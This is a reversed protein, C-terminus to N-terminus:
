PAMRLRSAAVGGPGLDLSTVAGGRELILRGTQATLAIWDQDGAPCPDLDMLGAGTELTAAAFCGRVAVDGVRGRLDPFRMNSFGPTDPFSFSLLGGDAFAVRGILDSGGLADLHLTGGPAEIDILGDVPPAATRGELHLDVPGGASIDVHLRGGSLSPAVLSHRVSSEAAVHLDLELPGTRPAVRVHGGRRSDISVQSGEPRDTVVLDTRCSGSVTGGRPPMIVDVPAANTCDMRATLVGRGQVRRVGGPLAPGATLTVADQGSGTDIDFVAADPRTLVITDDGAGSAITGNQASEITDAGAGTVLRGAPDTDPGASVSLGVRATGADLRDAGQMTRYCTATGDHRFTEAANTGTVCDRGTGPGRGQPGERVLTGVAEIRAGAARLKDDQLLLRAEQRLVTVGALVAASMVAALLIWEVAASGRPLARGPPGPSFFELPMTSFHSFTEACGSSVIDHSRRGASANKGSSFLAKPM